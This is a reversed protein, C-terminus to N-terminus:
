NEQHQMLALRKQPPPLYYTQIKQVAFIIPAAYKSCVSLNISFAHIIEKWILVLNWKFFTINIRKIVFDFEFNALLKGKDHCEVFLLTVTLIM